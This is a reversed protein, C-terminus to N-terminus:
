REPGDCMKFLFFIFLSFLTAWIQNRMSFAHILLQKIVGFFFDEMGMWTSAGPGKEHSVNLFSSM